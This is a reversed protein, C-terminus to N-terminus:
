TNRKLPPLADWLNALVHMFFRALIAGLPTLLFWPAVILNIAIGGFYVDSFWHGGGVIRPASLVIAMLLSVLMVRAGALRWMFATFLFFNVAHDSPFSSESSDKTAIPLLDSIRQSEVYVLTPSPRAADMVLHSWVAMLLAVFLMTLGYAGWRLVRDRPDPDRAMAWLYLALMALMGALDFLRLNSLGVLWLWVVNDETLWANTDLFVLEDLRAWFAQASSFWSFVLTAGLLNFVLLLPISPSSKALM